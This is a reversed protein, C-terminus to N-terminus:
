KEDRTTTTTSTTTPPPGLDTRQIAFVQHDLPTFSAPLNQCNVPSCSLAFGAVVNYTDGNPATVRLEGQLVAVVFLPDPDCTSTFQSPQLTDFLAGTYCLTIEEPPHNITCIVVGQTLDLLLGPLARSIAQGKLSTGDASVAQLGCDSGGLFQMEGIADGASTVVAGAPMKKRATVKQAPAKGGPSMTVVSKRPHVYLGSLHDGVTGAQAQGVGSSWLALSVMVLPLLARRAIRKPRNNM